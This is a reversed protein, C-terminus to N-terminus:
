ATRKASRIRTYNFIDWSTLLRKQSLRRLEDESLTHGNVRYVINVGLLAPGTVEMGNISLAQVIQQIDFAVEYAM